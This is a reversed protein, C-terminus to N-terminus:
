AARHRIRLDRLSFVAHSLRDRWRGAQRELVAGSPADRFRRSAWLVVGGGM